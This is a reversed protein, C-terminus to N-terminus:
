IKEIMNAQEMEKYNCFIQTKYILFHIVYYQTINSGSMHEKEYFHSFFRLFLNNTKFLYSIIKLKSPTRKSLFPYFDYFIM